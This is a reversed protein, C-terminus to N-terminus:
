LIAKCVLFNSHKYNFLTNIFITYYNQKKFFNANNIIIKGWSFKIFFPASFSILFISHIIITNTIDSQKLHLLDNVLFITSLSIIGYVLGHYMLQMSMPNLFTNYKAISYYTLLLTLTLYAFYFILNTNSM